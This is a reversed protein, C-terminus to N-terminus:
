KGRRFKRAHINGAGNTDESWSRAIDVVIRLIIGERVVYLVNFARLSRLDEDPEVRKKAGESNPHKDAFIRTVLIFM